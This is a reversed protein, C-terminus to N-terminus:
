VVAECSMLSVAAATGSRRRQRRRAGRQEVHTHADGPVRWEVHLLATKAVGGGGGGGEHTHTFM